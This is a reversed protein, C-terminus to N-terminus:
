PILVFDMRLRLEFFCLRPSAPPTTGTQALLGQLSPPLPGRAPQLRPSRARPPVTPPPPAKDDAKKYGLAQDLGDALEQHLKDPPPVTTPVVPRHQGPSKQLGREPSLLRAESTFSRLPASDGNM